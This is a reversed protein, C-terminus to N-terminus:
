IPIISVSDDDNIFCHYFVGDYKIKFGDSYPLVETIPYQSKILPEPFAEYWKGTKRDIIGMMILDDKYVIDYADFKPRNRYIVAMLGNDGPQFYTVPIGIKGCIVVCDWPTYWQWDEIEPRPWESTYREQRINEPEPSANESVTFELQFAPYRKYKGDWMNTPDYPMVRVSHGIVRYLGESLPEELIHTGFAYTLKDRDYLRFERM